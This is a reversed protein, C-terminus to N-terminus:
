CFEPERKLKEAVKISLLQKRTTAKPKKGELIENLRKLAALPTKFKGKPRVIRWGYDQLSLIRVHKSYHEKM